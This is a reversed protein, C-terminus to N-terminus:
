WCSETRGSVTATPPCSSTATASSALETSPQTHGQLIQRTVETIWGDREAIPIFADSILGVGPHQWRALVEFGRIKGTALVVIPQFHPVFEGGDLARRFTRADTKLEPLKAM